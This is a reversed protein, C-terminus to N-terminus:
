WVKPQPWPPVRYLLGEKLSWVHDALGAAMAPTCSRWLRASGRGTTPEPVRWPPRVSAHPLCFNHSTQFVVLPQRLGDEGKGLTSVCRGIAAGQQRITLNLRAVFATKIHWGCVALVQKVRELTGCVVRPKVAVIRRRRSAKLV